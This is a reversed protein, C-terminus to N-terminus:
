LSESLEATVISHTKQNEFEPPSLNFKRSLDFKEIVAQFDNRVLKFFGAMDANDFTSLELLLTEFKVQVAELRGLTATHQVPSHNEENVGPFLSSFEGESLTALAHSLGVVERGLHWTSMRLKDLQMHVQGEDHHRFEVQGVKREAPREWRYSPAKVWVFRHRWPPLANTASVALHGGRGSM